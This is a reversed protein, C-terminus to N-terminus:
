CCSRRSRLERQVAKQLAPDSAPVSYGHGLLYQKIQQDRDSARLGALIGTPWLDDIAAAIGSEIPRLRHKTPAESPSTSLQCVAEFERRILTLKLLYEPVGWMPTWRQYSRKPFAELMDVIWGRVTSIEAPENHSDIFHLAGDEIARRLELPAQAETR